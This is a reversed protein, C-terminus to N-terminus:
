NAMKKRYDALVSIWLLISVYAMPLLPASLRGYSEYYVIAVTTVLQMSISCGLFIIILLRIDNKKWWFYGAFPLFLVAIWIAIKTRGFIDNVKHLVAGSLANNQAPVSEYDAILAPIYTLAQYFYKGPNAQIVLRNFEALEKIRNRNTYVFPDRTDLAKFPHTIKARKALVATEYFFSVSRGPEIPMNFELIRGYIDIDSVQSIGPYSYNKSNIIRFILPICLYVICLFISLYRLGLRKKFAYFLFPTAVVPILLTAPRCLFNLIGVAFVFILKRVSPKALSSIILYMQFASLSLVIGETMMSREWMFLQPNFAIFLGGLFALFRNNQVSLLLMYFAIVGFIGLVAQIGMLVETGRVTHKSNRASALEDTGPVVISLFVPYLPTRYPNVITKLSPSHLISKGISYYGYSDANIVISSVTYSYILRIGAACLILVLFLRDVILQRNSM